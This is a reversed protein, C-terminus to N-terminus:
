AVKLVMQVRLIKSENFTLNRQIKFNKIKSHWLHFPQKRYNFYIWWVLENITNKKFLITWKLKYIGLYLYTCM